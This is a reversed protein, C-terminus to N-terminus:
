CIWPVHHVLQNQEGDVEVVSVVDDDYCYVRGFSVATPTAMDPWSAWWYVTRDIEVHQKTSM